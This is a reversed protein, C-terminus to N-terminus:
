VAPVTVYTAVVTVTSGAGGTFAGTANSFFIGLNKYTATALVTAAAIPAQTFIQSSAATIEATAITASTALNGGAHVTSDYQLQAVGGGAFAATGVQTIIQASLLIIANGTAPAQIIQVPTAYAGLVQAATMVVTNVQPFFNSRVLSWVGNNNQVQLEILNPMVGIGPSTKTAVIAMMNNQLSNIYEHAAGNLYGPATVSAITDNTEIYVWSPTRNSVGPQGVQIYKIAM